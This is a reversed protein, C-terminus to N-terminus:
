RTALNPGSAKEVKGAGSWGKWGCTSGRAGSSSEGGGIRAGMRVDDKEGVPPVGFHVGRAKPLM